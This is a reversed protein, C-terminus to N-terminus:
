QACPCLRSCPKWYQLRGRDAAHNPHQDYHTPAKRGSTHTAMLLLKAIYRLETASTSLSDELAELCRVVKHDLLLGLIIHVTVYILHAPWLAVGLPRVGLGAADDRAHLKPGFSAQPKMASGLAACIQNEQLCWTRGRCVSDESPKM